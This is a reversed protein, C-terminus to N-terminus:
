LRRSRPPASTQTFSTEFGLLVSRRSDIPGIYLPSTPLLSDTSAAALRATERRRRGCVALMALTDSSDNLTFSRMLTLLASRQGEGGPRASEEGRGIVRGSQGNKVPSSCSMCLWKGGSCTKLLASQTRTPRALGKTSVAVVAISGVGRRMGVLLDHHAVAVGAACPGEFCM